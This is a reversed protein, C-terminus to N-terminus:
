EVTITKRITKIGQGDEGDGRGIVRLEATGAQDFQLMLIRPFSRLDATCMSGSPASQDYLRVEASAPTASLEYGDARTCSGSGFSSVTVEFPVGKTVVDPAILSTPFLNGDIVMGLGRSWGGPELIGCGAAALTTAYLLFRLM